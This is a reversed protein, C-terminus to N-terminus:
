KNILIAEDIKFQGVMGEFEKHAKIIKIQKKFLPADLVFSEAEGGEFLLNTNYKEHVKLLNHIIDQNITAGLFEKDFGDASIQTIIVKFNNALENLENMPDIHWLPSIHTINLKKCMKDVREKQYQSAVAGTVLETVNNQELASELDKLEKEKQGLTNAFVQKICLADAQLCTYKINPKHFMYSFDNESVMTILLDISKGSEYIKHLALTSDKGGSFLCALM